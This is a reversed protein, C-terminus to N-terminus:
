EKNDKEKIEIEEDDRIESAIHCLTALLFGVISGVFVGAIFSTEM